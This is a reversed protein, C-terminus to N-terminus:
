HFSGSGKRGSSEGGMSQGAIEDDTVAYAANDTSRSVQNEAKQLIAHLKELDKTNLQDLDLREQFPQSPDGHISHDHKVTGDQKVQRVDRWRHPQRNKLWFICALVDPLIKRKKVEISEGNKESNTVKTEEVTFGMVRSFLATEAKATDFGDKGAKVAERFPDHTAVWGQITRENVGFLLALDAHTAGKEACAVYAIHPYRTHDYRFRADDGSFDTKVAVQRKNRPLINGNKDKTRGM